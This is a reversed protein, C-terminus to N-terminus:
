RRTDGVTPRSVPGIRVEDAGLTRMVRIFFGFSFSGRNIKTRLQQASEDGLLHALEQYDVGRRSLEAKLIGSAEPYFDQGSGSARDRMTQSM